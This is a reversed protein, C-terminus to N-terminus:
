EEEKQLAKLTNIRGEFPKPDFAAGESERQLQMQKELQDIRSSVEKSTMGGSAKTGSDTVARDPNSTGQQASALLSFAGLTIM